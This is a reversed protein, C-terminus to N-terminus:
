PVGGALRDHHKAHCSRCLVIVDSPWEKGLREYTNHHVELRTQTACLQCRNHARHLADERVRAWWPSARYDAYTAHGAFYGVPAHPPAPTAPIATEQPEEDKVWRERLRQLVAEGPTAM